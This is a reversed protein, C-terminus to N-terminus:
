KLSYEKLLVRETVTFVKGTEDMGHWVCEFTEGCFVKGKLTRMVGNYSGKEVTMKHSKNIQVAM